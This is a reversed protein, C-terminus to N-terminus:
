HQGPGTGPALCPSPPPPFSLMATAQLPSLSQCIGASHVDEHSGLFAKAEESEDVM